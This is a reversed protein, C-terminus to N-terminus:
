MVRNNDIMMNIVLQVVNDCGDKPKYPHELYQMLSNTSSIPISHPM